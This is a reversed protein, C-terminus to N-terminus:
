VASHECHANGTRLQISRGPVGNGRIDWLDQQQVTEMYVPVSGPFQLLLLEILLCGCNRTCILM